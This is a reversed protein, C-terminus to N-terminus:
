VAKKRNIIWILLISIQYLLILPIAMVLQNFLDPTPTLIAAFIFSALIVWREFSLLKKLSLPHIWNLLLMILPLQFIVGFGILYRTIFSFYETTSILAQIDSSAFNNLFYLAAPLSVFYAFTMGTTLLLSSFVIITLLLHPINSPLAPEIFRICHYMFFPLAVIFGFFLSIRLIFDFGGAPNAYFVPQGLPHILIALIKPHLLYGVVSGLIFIIVCWLLRSRLEQLHDAFVEIKPQLSKQNKPKQMMM